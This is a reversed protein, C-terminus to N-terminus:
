NDNVVFEGDAQGTIVVPEKGKEVAVIWVGKFIDTQIFTAHFELLSYVEAIVSPMDGALNRIQKDNSWPNDAHLYKGLRDYFKSFKKKSLYGTDKRDFHKVGNEQEKVPLLPLPYFNQNVKSLLNLIQSARYDKRFDPQEESSARFSEYAAKNPCIAAYAVNELAKRLQLISSELDFINSQKNFADLYCNAASLRSTTDSMMRLYINQSEQM